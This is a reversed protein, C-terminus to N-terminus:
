VKSFSRIAAQIQELAGRIRSDMHSPHRSSARFVLEGGVLDELVTVLPESGPEEFFPVQPMLLLGGGCSAIARLLLMDPSSLWPSVLAVGGDVLPLEGVPQRSRIWGLLDHHALDELRAPAGRQQLYSASAMLRLPARLLVRSFWLGEDPAQGDHLVIEVPDHLCALPDEVQRLVIKLRPLAGHTSLLVNVRPTLPLGIPELVRIVGTPENATDRADNLLARAGELLPLGREIVVAGAATLRVGEPDRHLLSVGVQEELRDLCRRLFSRSVGLNRAAGKITGKRAVEILFRVGELDM